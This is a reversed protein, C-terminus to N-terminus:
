RTVFNTNIKFLKTAPFESIKDVDKIKKIQSLIKAIRKKNVAVLAFWLNYEADRQYNHTAEPYLNIRQAVKGIRKPSVKVAALTSVFGIKRPDFTASIRRIVGNEKLYRIRKILFSESIDLERAIVKWPTQIFPIDQQLKDLILKDLKNLSFKRTM